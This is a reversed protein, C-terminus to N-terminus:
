QELNCGPAQLLGVGAMLLVGKQRGYYVSGLYISSEYYVYRDSKQM